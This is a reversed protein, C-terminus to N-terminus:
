TNRKASQFFSPCLESVSTENHPCAGNTKANQCCCFCNSELIDNHYSGAVLPQLDGSLHTGRTGNSGFVFIYQFCHFFKPGIPCVYDNISSSDFGTNLLTQLQFLFASGNGQSAISSLSVIRGYGRERMGAVVQRTCYFTGYLSVKVVADFQENTMKHFLADRTIGANNVLIDVRGFQSDVTDFARQVSDPDAVDCPVALTRAGEPDLERVAAALADEKLDLLAIRDVGDRLLRQAIAKGLGQAAGTVVATKGNLNGM